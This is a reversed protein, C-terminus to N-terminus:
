YNKKRWRGPGMGEMQKFVRFLAAEGSYGTKTAIADLSLTKDALLEKIRRVKIQRGYVAITIGFLERFAKQLNGEGIVLRSSLVAITPLQDVSLDMIAKAETAKQKFLRSSSKRSAPKPSISMTFYPTIKLQLHKTGAL